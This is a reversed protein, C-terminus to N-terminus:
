KRSMDHGAHPDTAGSKEAHKECCDMKKGDAKMQECHKKHAEHGAEGDHQSHNGKHQGHDAPMAHGAHPNAAPQATQAAAPAAITLAIATLLIKM